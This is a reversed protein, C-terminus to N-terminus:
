FYKNPWSVQLYIVFHHPNYFRFSILFPIQCIQCDGRELMDRGTARAMSLFMYNKLGM